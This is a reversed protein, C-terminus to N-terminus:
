EVALTNTLHILGAKAVNYASAGAVAVVGQVSAINLIVGGNENVSM